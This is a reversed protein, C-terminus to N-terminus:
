EEESNKNQMWNKEPEPFCWVDRRDDEDGDTGDKDGARGEHGM